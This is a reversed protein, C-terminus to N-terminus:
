VAGCEVSLREWVRRATHRQKPPAERDAELWADIVPIWEGLVPSQRQPQAEGRVTTAHEKLLLQTLSM